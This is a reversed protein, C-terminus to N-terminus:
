PNFDISEVIRAIEAQNAAPADSFYAGQVVVRTGDVDLIWVEGILSPAETAGLWWVSDAPGNWFRFEAIHDKDCGSTDLGPPVELRVHKGSYGDIKVDTAPGAETLAQDALAKALDDVSPGVRPDFLGGMWHCPDAYVNDVNWFAVMMRGAPDGLEKYSMGCGKWGETMTISLPMPIESLKPPVVYTATELRQDAHCTDAGGSAVASTASLIPSGESVVPGPSPEARATTAAQSPPSASTTACAASVIAFLGILAVWRADGMRM